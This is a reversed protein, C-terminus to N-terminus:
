LVETIEVVRLTWKKREGRRGKKGWGWVQIRNGHYLWTRAAESCETKIKGVRASVNSDSTAQILLSGHWGDMVLLDGFGFADKRVRAHPIWKECVYALWGRKECEALSRATPSMTRRISARDGARAEPGVASVIRM